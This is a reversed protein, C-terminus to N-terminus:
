NNEQKKGDEKREQLLDWVTSWKIPALKDEPYFYYLVKDYYFEFEENVSFALAYLSDTDHSFTKQEGDITGNFTIRGDKLECEGQGCDIM